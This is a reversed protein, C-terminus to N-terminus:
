KLRRLAAMADEQLERNKEAFHDKDDIRQVPDNNYEDKLTNNKRALNELWIENFKIRLKNTPRKKGCYIKFWLRYATKDQSYVGAGLYIM